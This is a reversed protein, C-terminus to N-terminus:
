PAKVERMMIVAVVMEGIDHVTDTEIVTGRSRFLIAMFLPLPVVDMKLEAFAALGYLISVCSVVVVISVISISSSKLHVALPLGPATSGISSVNLIIPNLSSKLVKPTMPARELFEDPDNLSILPPNFKFDENESLKGNGSYSRNDNETNKHHPACLPHTAANIPLM